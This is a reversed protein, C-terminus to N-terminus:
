AELRALWPHGPQVLALAERLWHRQAPTLLPLLAEFDGEDQPRRKEGAKYFLLVEPVVAKLGWPSAAMSQSLPIAVQPNRQCVWDEGARENVQIDLPYGWVVPSPLLDPLRTGDGRKAHIHSPVELWRGRWAEAHRERFDDEHAVLHWDKLHEFLLDHEDAFVVIDVDGHDRSQSGLWADVAWGGCLAWAGTFTSMVEAIEAVADPLRGESYGTSSTL